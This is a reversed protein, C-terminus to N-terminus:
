ILASYQITPRRIKSKINNVHTNVINFIETIGEKDSYLRLVPRKVQRLQPKPPLENLMLDVTSPELAKKYEALASFLEKKYNKLEYAHKRLKPFYYKNIYSNLVSDPIKEPKNPQQRMSISRKFSLSDRLIEIKLKLCTYRASKIQLYSRLHMQIFKVKRYFVIMLEFLYNSLMPKEILQNIIQTHKRKKDRIWIGIDPAISEIAM